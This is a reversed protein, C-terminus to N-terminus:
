GGGDAQFDPALRDGGPIRIRLTREQLILGDGVIQVTARFVQDVDTPAIRDNQLLVDFALEAKSRVDVFSDLKGDPKGKPLLDALTPPTEGAAPKDSVPEVAAVFGIPDASTEGSVTHFRVGDVLAVIADVLASSLGAGVTDVDFVLPCQGAASPVPKGGVGNPCKGGSPAAGLAGTALAVQELDGRARAHLDPDCGASASTSGCAGSVIGILKAGIANLANGADSLSHTGPFDSGYDGPMHSPADTIHLVVRLAGERFGVGGGRGGGAAPQGNFPAILTRGANMYGKGTAIQWLAEAGAEPVDGGENLPQDLRAVASAVTAIESTVPTLLVFPQDAALGGEGPSGFPPKPFDAFKSVGFSVSAVRSQLGPVVTSQLAAQLEDIEDGISSTTDVSFHVDLVGPDAKITLRRTVAPGLFPLVVEEDARPLIPGGDPRESRSGASGTGGDGASPRQKGKGTSVSKPAAEGHSCSANLV